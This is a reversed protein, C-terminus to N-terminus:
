KNRATGCMAQPIETGWDPVSGSVGKSPATTGGPGGPFDRARIKVKIQMERIVLTQGDKWTSLSWEYVKM